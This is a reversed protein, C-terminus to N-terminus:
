GTVSQMSMAAFPTIPPTIPPIIAKVILLTFYLRQLLDFITECLRGRLPDGKQKKPRLHTQTLGFYSNKVHFPARRVVCKHKQPSSREAMKRLM